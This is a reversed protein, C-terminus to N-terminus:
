GKPKKLTEAIAIMKALYDEDGDATVNILREYLDDPVAASGFLAKQWKGYLRRPVTGQLGNEVNSITGSTTGIKDALDRQSFGRAERQAKLKAAMEGTVVVKPEREPPKTMPLSAVM